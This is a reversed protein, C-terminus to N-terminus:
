ALYSVLHKGIQFLGQYVNRINILADVKFQTGFCKEYQVYFCQGVGINIRSSLETENIRFVYDIKSMFIYYHYYYNILKELNKEGLLKKIKANKFYIDIRLHGINYNESMLIFRLMALISYIDNFPTTKFNRKFDSITIDETYRVDFDKKESFDRLMVEAIEKLRQKFGPLKTKCDSASLINDFILDTNNYILDISANWEIVRMSNDNSNLYNVVSNLDRSMNFIEDMVSRSFRKHEYRITNGDGFVLSFNTTEYIKIDRILSLCGMAHVKDRGDLKFLKYLCISFIEEIPLIEEFYENPYAFNLDIDSYLRNSNRGYSGFLYILVPTNSLLPFWKIMTGIVDVLIQKKRSRISEVEDILISNKFIIETFEKDVAKIEASYRGFLMDM